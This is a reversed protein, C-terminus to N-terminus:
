KLEAAAEGLKQRLRKLAVHLLFGVNTVSLNTVRSIQKYSMGHQFKLRVVEQQHASLSAMAEAVQSAAEQREIAEIPEEDTSAYGEAQAENMPQMRREKRRIDIALNRCVAYLWERLHPEVRERPEACLRFFAEQVVDRAREGDGGLLHAAYGVLPREFQRLATRVFDAGAADPAPGAQEGRRGVFDDRVTDM